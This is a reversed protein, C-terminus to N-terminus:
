AEGTACRDCDQPSDDAAMLLVPAFGGGATRM